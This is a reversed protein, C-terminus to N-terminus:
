NQWQEKVETKLSYLGVNSEMKPYFCQYIMGYDNFFSM